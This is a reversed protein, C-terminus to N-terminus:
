NPSWPAGSQELDIEREYVAVVGDFISAYPQVIATGPTWDPGSLTVNRYYTTPNGPNIHQEVPGTAVVKYWRYWYNTYVNTTVAVSASIPTLPAPGGSRQSLMIWQGAKLNLYSQIPCQLQVDGGAIGTPPNGTSGDPNFPTLSVTVMRESPPTEGTPDILVLPNRKYFVVTSVRVLNTDGNPTFVMPSATTGEYTSNGPVVTALWSYDGQSQRRGGASYFQTPPFDGEPANLVLDDGFRFVMDAQGASYPVINASSQPYTQTTSNQPYAQLTIRSLCPITYTPACQANASVAPYVIAALSSTGDVAPFAPALWNGHTDYNNQNAIVGIPDIAFGQSYNGYSVSPAGPPPSIGYSTTSFPMLPQATTGSVMGSGDITAGGPTLWTQVLVTTTPTNCAQVPRLMGYIKLSRQASRAVSVARDLKVGESMEIGGLWFLAALGSLGILAVFMSILVELLTVGRYRTKTLSRARTVGGDTM